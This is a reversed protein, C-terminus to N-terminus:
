KAEKAEFHSAWLSSWVAGAFVFVAPVDFIAGVVAPVIGIVIGQVFYRM